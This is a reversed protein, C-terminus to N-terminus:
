IMEGYLCVRSILSNSNNCLPKLINNNKLKLCRWRLQQLLGLANQTGLPRFLTFLNFTKFFKESRQFLLFAFQAGLQVIGLTASLLLMKAFLKGDNTRLTM